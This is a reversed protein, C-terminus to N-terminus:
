GLRSVPEPAPNCMTYATVGAEDLIGQIDKRDVNSIRDMWSKKRGGGSKIRDIASQQSPQVIIEQGHPNHNLDLADVIRAWEREGHSLLDEYFIVPYGDVEAREMPFQNEICWILTHAEAPSLKRELISAYRSRLAGLTIGDRFQELVPDPDWSRGGIRLRSEVVAGPHRVVFIIRADFRHRLWGLMLNGRIIKVLVSAYGNMTRYEAYRKAANRWQTLLGSLRGPSRMMSLRPMLLHPRIRYDIWASHMKGSFIGGMFEYMDPEDDDPGFYRNAFRRANPVADPHLPEFIPRLRNTQALVDLIWTTGSRGSGAIVRPTSRNDAPM